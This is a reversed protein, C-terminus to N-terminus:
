NAWAMNRLDYTRVKAVVYCMQAPVSIGRRPIPVSLETARRHRGSPSELGTRGRKELQLKPRDARYKAFIRYTSSREADLRM